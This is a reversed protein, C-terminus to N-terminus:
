GSCFVDDDLLSEVGVESLINKVHKLVDDRRSEPHWGGIVIGLRRDLDGVSTSTPSGKLELQAVRAALDEQGRKIDAVEHKVEQIRRMTSIELKKVARDIDEATQERTDRTQQQLLRELSAVTIEGADRKKAPSKDEEELENERKEGRNAKPREADMAAPITVFFPEVDRVRLLPHSSTASGSSRM